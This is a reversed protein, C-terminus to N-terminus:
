STYWGHYLVKTAATRAAGLAADLVFRAVAKQAAQAAQEEANAALVSMQKDIRWKDAVSIPETEETAGTRGYYSLANDANDSHSPEERERARNREREKNRHTAAPQRLLFIPYRADISFHM